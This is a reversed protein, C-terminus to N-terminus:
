ASRAYLSEFSLVGANGLRDLEEPETMLPISEGSAARIRVGRFNRLASDDGRQLYRQVADWYEAVKSAQRSDRTALERTGYGTPLLLVRLLRDRKKTVYRGSPSKKLASNGWRTVTRPDLGFDRAARALSVEDARMKSIVHTMRTWQDQFEASRAFFEAATKPSDKGQARQRLARTKRRPATRHKSNRKAM